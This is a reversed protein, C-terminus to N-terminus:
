LNILVFIHKSLKNLSSNDIITFAACNVLYMHRYIIKKLDSVISIKCFYKYSEYILHIRLVNLIVERM